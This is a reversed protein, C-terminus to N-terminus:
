MKNRPIPISFSIYMHIHINRYTLLCLPPIFNFLKLSIRKITHKLHCPHADVRLSYQRNMLIYNSLIGSDRQRVIIVARPIKMYLFNLFNIASPVHALHIRIWHLTTLTVYLNYTLGPILDKRFM